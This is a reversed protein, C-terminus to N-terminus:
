FGVAFSAYVEMFYLICKLPIQRKTELHMCQDLIATIFVEISIYSQNKIFFPDGHGLDSPKNMHSLYIVNGAEDETCQQEVYPDNIIGVITFM